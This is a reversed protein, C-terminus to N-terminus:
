IRSAEPEGVVQRRIVEPTNCVECEDPVAWKGCKNCLTGNQIKYYM